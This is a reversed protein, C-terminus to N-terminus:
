CRNEVMQLLSIIANHYDEYGLKKVDLEKVAAQVIQMNTANQLSQALGSFALPTTRIGWNDLLLMSPNALSVSEVTEPLPLRFKLLLGGLATSSTRQLFQRRNLM